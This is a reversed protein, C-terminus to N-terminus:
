WSAAAALILCDILEVSAAFGFSPKKTVDHKVWLKSMVSMATRVTRTFPVVTCSANRRHYKLSLPSVRRMSADFSGCM